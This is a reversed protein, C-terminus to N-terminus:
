FTLLGTLIINLKDLHKRKRKTDSGNSGDLSDILILKAYKNCQHYENNLRKSAEIRKLNM